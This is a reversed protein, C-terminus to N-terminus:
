PNSLGIISVGDSGDVLYRGGAIALRMPRSVSQRNASGDLYEIRFTVPIIQPQRADELTEHGARLYQAYCTAFFSLNPDILFTQQRDATAAGGVAEIM